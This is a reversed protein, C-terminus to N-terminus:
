NKLNTKVQGLAKIKTKTKTASLTCHHIGKGLSRCALFVFHRIWRKPMKLQGGRLIHATAPLDPLVFLLWPFNSYRWCSCENLRQLSTNNKSQEGTELQSGQDVVPVTCDTSVNEASDSFRLFFENLTPPSVFMALTRKPFLCFATAYSCFAM